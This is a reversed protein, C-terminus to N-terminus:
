SRERGSRPQVTSDPNAPPSNGVVKAWADAMRETARVQAFFKHERYYKKWRGSDHLEAFHARRREVLAHWKWAIDDPIRKQSKDDMLGLGGDRHIKLAM